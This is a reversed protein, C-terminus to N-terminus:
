GWYGRGLFAPLPARYAMTRSRSLARALPKLPTPVYKMLRWFFRCRSQGVENVSYLISDVKMTGWRVLAGVRVYVQGVKSMGRIWEDDTDVEVKIWTGM